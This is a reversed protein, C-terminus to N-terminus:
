CVAYEKETCGTTPLQPICSCNGLIIRMTARIGAITKWVGCHGERVVKVARKYPCSHPLLVYM